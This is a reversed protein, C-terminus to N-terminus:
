QGRLFLRDLDALSLRTWTPRGHNCQDARDTGEMERLLANMEPLSLQRHARVSAHCAMTALLHDIVAEVRRSAGHAVLDSLVDRVIGGPARDALLAPVARLVLEGPSLRDLDFGLAAFEAAHAEAQNADAPSVPIVEPVLLRQQANGGQLLKKLREYLVREHAAHMDVLVLGDQAQALIYVGHLQAIAFGLPAAGPTADAVGERGASVLDRYRDVAAGARSAEPLLFRAQTPEYSGQKPTYGAYGDPARQAGYPSQAFAASASL